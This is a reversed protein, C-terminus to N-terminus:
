ATMKFLTSLPNYKKHFNIANNDTDYPVNPDFKLYMNLITYGDNIYEYDYRLEGEKDLVYNLVLFHFNYNKSKLISICKDINNLVSIDRFQNNMSTYCFLYKKSTDLFRNVCRVYYEYDKDDTLPNKHLFFTEDVNYDMHSNQGFKNIYYRNKDLFLQFNDNLCHNVIELNSVIWDFPYSAKRYNLLKMVGASYCHPGLSISEDFEIM